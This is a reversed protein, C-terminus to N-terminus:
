IVENWIEFTQDNIQKDSFEVEVIKRGIEGMKKCLQKDSILTVLAAELRKQDRFPVLFGNIGNKVIERSGPVDFAVVPRACSAAELLVKPLGEHYSPLCTITAKAYIPAMQEQRNLHKVINKSVWKDIQSQSVSESNHQDIDGVLVFEAEIHKEKISKAASVFEAVGKDWLMRAPMIIVPYGDPLATPKYQDIEVGSGRVLKTFGLKVIGLTEFLRINDPNQLIFRTNEGALCFKLLRSIVPRLLKAKLSSSTFIFGIGGMSAVYGYKCGLRKLIGCYLVPKQAVAHVLDPKFAKIIQRLKFITMIELAPNLSRRVLGWNFIKIGLGELMNEYTSFRTALAVEHGEAIASKLLHLRHSILAWDETIVFLVKAM